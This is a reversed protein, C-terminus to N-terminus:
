KNVSGILRCCVSTSNYVLTQFVSLLCVPLIWKVSVAFKKITESFTIIFDWKNRQRRLAGHYCVPYTIYAFSRAKKIEAISLRPNDIECDPAISESMIWPPGFEILVHPHPSSELGWRSGFGSYEARLQRINLGCSDSINRKEFVREHRMSPLLVQGRKNHRAFWMDPYNIYIPALTHRLTRQHISLFCATARRTSVKNFYLVCSMDEYCGVPVARLVTGSTGNISERSGTISWTTPAHAPQSWVARKVASAGYVVIQCYRLLWWTAPLRFM